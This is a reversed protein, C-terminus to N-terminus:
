KDLEVTFEYFQTKATRKFEKFLDKNGFYVTHLRACGYLAKDGIFKCKAPVHLTELIEMGYLGFKDIQELNEPLVVEECRKLNYFTSDEIKTINSPLYLQRINECNYFAKKGIEELQSDVEFKLDKIGVCEYFAHEEIEKLSKPLAITRLKVCNYFSGKCIKELGKSFKVNLLRNCGSFAEEEIVKVSDPLTINELRTAHYFCENPIVEVGDPINITQLSTCQSFASSGIKNVTSPLEIQYLSTCNGFALGGISTIGESLNVIGLNSCNYFTRYGIKTVKSPIVIERIIECSSFVDDCLEILTEPLIISELNSCEAFASDKIEEVGFPISITKLSKLGQFCGEGIVKIGDPIQVMANRGTYKVLVDGDTEFFTKKSFDNYRQEDRKKQYLEELEVKAEDIRRVKAEDIKDKTEQPYYNYEDALMNLADLCEDYRSPNLQINDVLTTFRFAQYTCYEETIITNQEPTAVSLAQKLYARHTTDEINTFNQTATRVKAFHSRYDNPFLRIMDEAVAEARDILGENLLNIVKEYNNEPTLAKPKEPAKMIVKNAEKIEATEVRIMEIYRNKLEPNPTLEKRVTNILVSYYEGRRKNTEIKNEVPIHRKYALDSMSEDIKFEIFRLNKNMAMIMEDKVAETRLSRNSQVLIVMRCYAIGEEVGQKPDKSEEINRDKIFCRINLSELVTAIEYAVEQDQPAYCIYCERKMLKYQNELKIDAQRKKLKKMWSIYNTPNEVTREIFEDILVTDNLTAHNIVHELVETNEEETGAESDMYKFFSVYYYPNGKEKAAYAYYYNALFDGAIVTGIERCANKMLILDNAEIAEKLKERNQKLRATEDDSINVISIANQTNYSLNCHPCIGYLRGSEADIVNGCYPCRAAVLSM